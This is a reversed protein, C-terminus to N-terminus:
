DNSEQYLPSYRERKYSRKIGWGDRCTEYGTSLESLFKEIREKERLDKDTGARSITIKQFEKPKNRM